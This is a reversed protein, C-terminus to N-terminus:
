RSNRRKSGLLGPIRRRLSFGAEELFSRLRRVLTDSRESRELLGELAARRIHWSRGITLCPLSGKRHWRYVTVPGVVLYADVNGGDLLCTEVAFSADIDQAGAACESEVV